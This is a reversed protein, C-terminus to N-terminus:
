RTLLRCIEDLKASEAQILEAGELKLNELNDASADDMDDNAKDLTTQLRYYNGGLIQALQYDVTDSVGDFVVDLIHRAWGALGWGKAAEVSIPKTASGTGLSVLLTDEVRAQGAFADVFACMGPNTAFVGGDILALPPEGVVAPEFYTPAAATARAVEHMAYDYRDPEIRARESRFFVPQRLQLDYATVIVSTLADKLRADGLEERLVDELGEDSYKEEFFQRVRGFIEHPFIEPGNDVYLDVVDAASFKPRGDDGACTLGLAIIGGTSTGAIVDFLEAIPREVTREVHDLVMAPIIGRIGGGDISLIKM